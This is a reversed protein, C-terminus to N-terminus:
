QDSSHRLKHEFGTAM